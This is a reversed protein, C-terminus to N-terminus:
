IEFVFLGSTVDELAFTNAESAGDRLTYPPFTRSVKNQRRVQDEPIAAMNCAFIRILFMGNLRISVLIPM